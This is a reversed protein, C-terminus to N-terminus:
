WVADQAISRCGLRTNWKWCHPCVQRRNKGSSDNPGRSIPLQPRSTVSDLPSSGTFVLVWACSYLHSLIRFGVKSQRYEGARGHGKGAVLWALAFTRRSGEDKWWALSCRDSSGPQNCWVGPKSGPDTFVVNRCLLRGTVPRQVSWDCGSHICLLGTLMPCVELFPLYKIIMNM